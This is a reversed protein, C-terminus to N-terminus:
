YLKITYKSQLAAVIHKDVIVHFDVTSAAKSWTNVTNDPYIGRREFSIGSLNYQANPGCEDIAVLLALIGTSPRFLGSIEYNDYHINRISEVIFRRVLSLFSVHSASLHGSCLIPPQQNLHKRWLANAAPISLHRVVSQCGSEILEATANKYLEPGYIITRSTDSSALLERKKTLWALKEQNVIRGEFDLEAASVVSVIPVGANYRRLQSRYYGAASNAAYISDASVLEADPRSGLILVSMGTM